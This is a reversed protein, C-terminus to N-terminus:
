PLRWTRGLREMALTAERAGAGFGRFAENLVAVRENTRLLAQRLTATRAVRELRRFERQLVITFLASGVLMELVFATM